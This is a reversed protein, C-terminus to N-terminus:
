EIHEVVAGPWSSRPHVVTHQYPSDRRSGIGGLLPHVDSEADSHVVDTQLAPQEAKALTVLLACVVIVLAGFAASPSAPQHMVVMQFVYAIPVQLAGLVNAPAAELKELGMNLFVNALLSVNGGVFLFLLTTRSIGYPSLPLSMLLCLPGTTIAISFGMWMTLTVSDQRPGIARTAVLFAADSFSAGLALVTGIVAASTGASAKAAAAAAASQDEGGASSRAVLAVGLCVFVAAVQGTRTVPERLWFFAMATTWVPSTFLLVTANGIPIKAFAGFACLISVAGLAQRFVCLAVFDWGQGGCLARRRVDGRSLTFLACMSFRVLGVYFTITPTGLGADAASRVIISSLAFGFASLVVLAAGISRALAASAEGMDCCSPAITDVRETSQTRDRRAREALGSCRQHRGVDPDPEFQFVVNRARACCRPSPRFCAQAPDLSRRGERVPRGEVAIAPKTSRWRTGDRHADRGRKEVFPLQRHLLGRAIHRVDSVLFQNKMEIWAACDGLQHCVYIPATLSLDNRRDDPPADDAQVRARWRSGLELPTM